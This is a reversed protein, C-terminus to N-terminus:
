EEWEIYITKVLSNNSKAIAEKKSSYFSPSCCMPYINIWGSKKESAMFLDGANDGELFQKGNESWQHIRNNETLGCLPFPNDVKFLHLQTVPRGDRTVVPKGALAQELNFPKM